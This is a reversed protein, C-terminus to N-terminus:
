KFFRDNINALIEYFIEKKNFSREFYNNRKPMNINKFIITEYRNNSIKKWLYNIRLTHYPSTVITVSSLNNKHLYNKLIKLGNESNSYEKYIVHINKRDVNINFLLSEIIKQEPISQIKGLLIYKTDNYANNKEIYYKVDLFRQLYSNNWYEFGQHGSLVFVAETKKQEDFYILNKGLYWFFPTYFIVFYISILFTLLIKVKARFNKYFKTLLIKLLRLIIGILFYNFKSFNKSNLFDNCITNIIRNLEQVKHFSMSGTRRTITLFIQPHYIIQKNYKKFARLWFILDERKNYDVEFLYNKFVKKKIIASSILFPNYIYIWFFGKKKVFYIFFIQFLIRINTVIFNSKKYGAELQYNAATFSFLSDGINKIQYELKDKSWYDDSDLFAIYEGKAKSIGLNRPAAVTRSNIETKFFKIRKDKKMFQNIINHSNDTSCDDVIILEFNDYTQNLVSQISKSLFKESNYNPLIVSVLYKKNKM